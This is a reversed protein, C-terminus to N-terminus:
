LGMFDWEFQVLSSVQINISKKKKSYIFIESIPTSVFFCLILLFERSPESYLARRPQGRWVPLRDQHCLPCCKSVQVAAPGKSWLLVVVAVVLQSFFWHFQLQLASAEETVESVVCQFAM